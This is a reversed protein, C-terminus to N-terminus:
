AQLSAHWRRVSIVGAAILRHRLLWAEAEQVLGQAADPETPRSPGRIDALMRDWAETAAQKHRAGIDEVVHVTFGAAGLAQDIAGPRPPPRSWGELLLWRRFAQAHEAPPLSPAVTELLLLQGAPKLANALARALHEPEAGVRVPELALAHHHFHDRFAPAAPTWPYLQARRGLPSLRTAMRQALLHDHQHIAMWAGRQSGIIMAGGGADRGLMLLTTAPSLPLLTALRLLEAAGGPLLFGPGWLKDAWDARAAPVQSAAPAPGAALGAAADMGAAEPKAAAEAVPAPRIWAAFPRGLWQLPHWGELAAILKHATQLPMARPAAHTAPPEPLASCCVM